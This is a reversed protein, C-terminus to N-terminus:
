SGSQGMMSEGIRLLGQLVLRDCLVMQCKCRSLFAPAAGGTCVVTVNDHGAQQMEASLQEIAGWTARVAGTTIAERTSHPFSVVEGQEPGLRATKSALMTHMMEIGPLIMGGLFEGRITLADITTATGMCVVVRNGPSLAHAGILAAWRDPGLQEPNDYNNTVGCQKPQSRVWIPSLSWRECGHELHEGVADGAVNAIVASDPVALSEWQAELRDPDGTAFWGEGVVAAYEYLAWKVRSNGADVALIRPRRSM